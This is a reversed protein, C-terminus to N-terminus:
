LRADTGFQDVFIFFDDFDVFGDYNLDGSYSETAFVDVFLFFDDFDVVGNGTLDGILTGGVIITAEPSYVKREDATPGISVEQLTIVTPGDFSNLVSFSIQAIEGATLNLASGFTGGGIEVTNARVFYGPSSWNELAGELKGQVPTVQSPNFELVIKVSKANSIPQLLCIQTSFEDGPQIPTVRRKEQNGSAPALDLTFVGNGEQPTIAAPKKEVTLMISTSTAENQNDTAVLTLNHDGTSLNTKSLTSGFGLIGDINSRWELADGTLAGDELDEGSGMFDIQFGQTYSSGDEPSQISATPAANEPTDIVTILLQETDSAGRPDEVKLTITYSGAQEYTPM